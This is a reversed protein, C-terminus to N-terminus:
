SPRAVVPERGVVAFYGYSVALFLYLAVVGWGLGNITHHLMALLYVVFGISQGIALPLTILQGAEAPASKLRWLYVGVAINLSGFLQAILAAGPELLVGYLEVLRVPVAVFAVGYVLGAISNVVFVHKLKM